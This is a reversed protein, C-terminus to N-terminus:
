QDTSSVLYQELWLISVFSIPPAHLTYPPSSFRICPKPPSVQHFLSWKPSGPMSPLIINLHIKLFYSTPTHVLDLQNLVPVPPPFKHIRYHVKPSWLIRPFTKVLQSNTLKELVRSWSTLFYTIKSTNNQEWEALITVNMWESISYRTSGCKM